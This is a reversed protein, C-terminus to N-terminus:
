CKTKETGAALKHGDELIILQDPKVNCAAMDDGEEDVLGILGPRSQYLRLWEDFSASRGIASAAIAFSRSSSGTGSGSFAMSSSFVASSDSESLEFIRGPLLPSDRFTDITPDYWLGLKVDAPDRAVATIPDCPEM